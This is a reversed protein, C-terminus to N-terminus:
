HHPGTPPPRAGPCGGRRRRAGPDADVQAGVPRVRPDGPQGDDEYGFGQKILEWGGAPSNDRIGDFPDAFHGTYPDDGAYFPSEIWRAGGTVYLTRLPWFEATYDFTNLRGGPNTVPNAPDTSIGKPACDQAIGRHAGFLLLAAFLLRKKLVSVTNKQMKFM